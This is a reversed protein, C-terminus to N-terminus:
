YKRARGSIANYHADWRKRWGTTSEVLSEEIREGYHLGEIPETVDHINELHVMVAVLADITKTRWCCSCLLCEVERREEAGLTARIVSKEDKTLIKVFSKAISTSKIDHANVFTVLHRTRQDRYREMDNAWQQNTEMYHEVMQGWSKLTRDYCRGLAKLEVYAVDPIGLDKLLAEVISEAETHRVHGNLDVVPHVVPGPCTQPLQEPVLVCDPYYHLANEKHKPRWSNKWASDVTKRPLPVRFITDARLLFRIVESLHASSSTSKNVGVYTKHVGCFIEALRTETESRWESVKQKITPKRSNFEHEVNEIPIQAEYVEKICDWGLLEVRGPFPSDLVHLPSSTTQDVPALSSSPESPLPSSIDLEDIIPQFPHFEWKLKLLLDIVRETRAAEEQRVRKDELMTKLKPVLNSWIRETLPKAVDVLADWAKQLEDEFVFDGSTWGLAELREHILQRRQAKIETAEKLQAQETANVYGVIAESERGKPKIGRSIPIAIHNSTYIINEHYPVLETDRCAACLRVRLNGDPKLKTSAGCLTCFNTFLLAVFQPESMEQPVAPLGPDREIASEWVEKANRSMLIERFAKSARALSLLGTPMVYLIIQMFLEVPMSLLGKRIDIESSKAAKRPIKSKSLALRARKVPHPAPNVAETYGEDSMVGGKVERTTASADPKNSSGRTTVPM